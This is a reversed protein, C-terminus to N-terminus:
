APQNGGTNEGTPPLAVAVERPPQSSTLRGGVRSLAAGSVHAAAATWKMGIINRNQLPGPAQLSILEDPSELPHVVALLQVGDSFDYTTFQDLHTTVSSM